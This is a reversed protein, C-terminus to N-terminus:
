GDDGGEEHHEGIRGQQAPGLFGRHRAERVVRRASAPTYGFHEGVAKSPKGTAVHARYVRAVGQLFEDTLQHRAHGNPRKRLEAAVRRVQKADKKIIPGHQGLPRAVRLVAKRIESGLPFRHLQEPTVWRAEFRMCVPRGTEDVAIHLTWEFPERGSSQFYVPIELGEGFPVFVMEGETGDDLVMLGRRAGPLMELMWKFHKEM